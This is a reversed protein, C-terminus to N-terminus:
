VRGPAHLAPRRYHPLFHATPPELVVLALSPLLTLSVAAVVRDPVPHSFPEARPARGFRGARPALHPGFKSGLNSGTELAGASRELASQLSIEIPSVPNSGAVARGGAPHTATTWSAGTAM